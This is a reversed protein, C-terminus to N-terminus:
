LHEDDIDDEDMDGMDSDTPVVFPTSEAVHIHGMQNKRPHPPTHQDHMQSVIGSWGSSAM